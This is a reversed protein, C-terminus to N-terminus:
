PKQPLKVWKAAHRMRTASSKSIRSGPADKNYACIHGTPPEDYEVICNADRIDQISVQVLGDTPYGNLVESETVKDCRFVSLAKTRFAGDSIVPKGNMDFEFYIAQIRRYVIVSGLISPDDPM